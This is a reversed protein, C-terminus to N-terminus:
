ILFIYRIKRKEDRGEKMGKEKKAAARLLKIETGLGPISGPGYCHYCWTKAM